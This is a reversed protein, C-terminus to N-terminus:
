IGVISDGKTVLVAGVGKDAMLTLAEFVSADPSITVVDSGKEDLINKVTAM